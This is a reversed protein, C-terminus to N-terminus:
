SAADLGAAAVLERIREEDVPGHVVGRIVGDADVAVTAPLSTVKFARTVKGSADLALPFTVGADDALKAVAEATERLNIAVIMVNAQSASQFAAMEERCNACWTAWFTILVPKGARSALDVEGGDPTQLRFNPARQGPAAGIEVGPLDVPWDIVGFTGSSEGGGCGALVLIATLGFLSTIRIGLRTTWAHM